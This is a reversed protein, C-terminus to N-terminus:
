AIQRRALSAFVGEQQMLEVYNGAQVIRGAQLVYIRDANMITSLRHAIVIRTAALSELSRSVIQQTQNDLASTAEDFLLIRPKNVIARAIMLRQKQGGSFTGAGESIVTQLGMPMERIDAELGAMRAAEWADDLTLHTSSGVINSFIDGVLLKGGQLVVGIQSRVSQVDLGSLNQGDFFVGGAEPNDFGLILRLLTSKGSGSPGVLAVFEGPEAKFSVDTLVQPGDPRYRFSVQSVELSGSLEGPEAKSSDVEPSTALIPKMREYLPVVALASSFVGVMSLAAALFQGLASNFALFDGTNFGGQTRLSWQVTAFIVMSMLVPATSTFATLLNGTKRADISLERQRRFQTSWVLFARREAASVRLKAIANLLQFVLGAIKGQVKQIERQHRLQYYTLLYTVGLLVIVLGTAWLALKWSYYFLLAFNFLSFVSALVTTVTNGTLTQRIMNIAMARMALDGVTYDRFFSVPLSLLRDWVASQLINDLKGEIRLTAISRTIEFLSASLAAVLLGTTVQALPGYEAGPIVTGFFYGTVIPVLLGLLGGAFGMLLLTWLDRGSSSLGLSWLTNGTVGSDPLPRFFMTGFFDLRAAIAPTVAVRSKEVPDVMEYSKPTLPLLAVPRKQKRAEDLFRYALLPGNDERWWEGRLAVQRTRVRSAKSIRRLPNSSRVATSEERPGVLPIGQATGVIQCVRLLEDGAVPPAAVEVAVSDDLISALMVFSQEAAADDRRKKEEFRQLRGQEIGAINRRLAELFMRQFAELHRLVGGALVRERTDEVTGKLRGAATAWTAATLPLAGDPGTAWAEEGLFLLRGESPQIWLVDHARLVTGPEVDLEKGRVPEHFKRPPPELAASESLHLIWRDLVVALDASDDLQREADQLRSVPFRVVTTGPVGAAVLQIEGSVGGLGCIIDGPDARFAHVRPGFQAGDRTRYAFVNLFGTEVLYVSAAEDLPIQQSSSAELRLAGTELFERLPESIM